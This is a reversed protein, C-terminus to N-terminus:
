WYDLYTYPTETKPTWIKHLFESLTQKKSKSKRMKTVEEFAQKLESRIKLVQDDKKLRALLYQAEIKM